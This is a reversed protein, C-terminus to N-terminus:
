INSTWEMSIDLLDDYKPPTEHRIVQSAIRDLDGSAIVTLHMDSRHIGLSWGNDYYIAVAPRRIWM